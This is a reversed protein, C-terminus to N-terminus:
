PAAAREGAGSRRLLGLAAAPFLLVSLVGASVFAAATVGSVAGTAVGIQTAAVVFPLSTAQLLAAALTSPGDLVRRFLLAPLGRVLLLALLLVPVRLAAAPDAFLGGLDLRVGSSVFFVPVLFGYGIAELKTRLHPHSAADRDVTALVAGAVFAGLITEIGFRAALAVFGVLLVVAARVRVQATTDQLRLLVDGLRMSRGARRVAVTVVVALVAFASLLATTAGTSGTASFLLSLLVVAAFDAVTAAAVTLRGVPARDAGADKLVPVVLGLSTASLAVAVLLGSRVWGAAQLGLGVALGLAITVVYGIGASRLAPGGLARVDIELGALFLLFGLGLVALVAVVEDVQVWGLGTPGLVVGALIEVVVSPVRLGPAFGLLLPVLLAVTSVVLLNDFGVDPMTM